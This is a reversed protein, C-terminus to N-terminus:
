LLKSSYFDRRENYDCKHSGGLELRLSITKFNMACDLWTGERAIHELQSVSTLIRNPLDLVDRCRQRKDDSKMREHLSM